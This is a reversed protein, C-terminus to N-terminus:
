GNSADGSPYGLIFYKWHELLENWVLAEEGTFVEAQGQYEEMLYFQKSVAQLWEETWGDMYESESKLFLIDFTDNDQAM